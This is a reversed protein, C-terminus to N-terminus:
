GTHNISILVSLRVSSIEAIDIRRFVYIVSSLIRKGFEKVEAFFSFILAKWEPFIVDTSCSVAIASTSGTGVGPQWQNPSRKPEGFHIKSFHEPPVQLCYARVGVVGYHRPPNESVAEWCDALGGAVCGSQRSNGM